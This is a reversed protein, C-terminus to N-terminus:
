NCAVSVEGSPTITGGAGASAVITFPPNLGFSAAITHNAAVHEFTYTTVPGVSAGDVLVDFVHYCSDAAFAFTQTGNCAVSVEGAPSITGGATASAAITFAPNAAFSAAITHNAGVHEFTYTTVPGVTVGDVLVDLVHFCTDAAIAFTQTGDSAVAIEGAPTI